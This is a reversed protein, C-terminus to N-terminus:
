RTRPDFIRYLLDSILNLTIFIVGVILVCTMVANMDGILMNNTLYQGFGPWSFVTEILVAGELLSGYALAVITVLQVRINLFAHRWITQRSSLGKVRATTIYEQNIQDLMFSRTMRTIYASSSYGLISAPLILHNLASRFVEWDGALASDILLFGTREDVMGIYYDSMRGSGGVWGLAAYFVLLGIMGTWFIPMSHGMLSFVRVVHDPWRDKNVAALVGLTVGLTAGILIALTALEITAPLVHLIDNIVPQGTRISVGFNGSLVDRLYFFFQEWLPRDLGLQRYVMEYTERTADEGVIARVPDSPMMRGIVFTLVLLGFLTVAVTFLQSLLPGLHFRYRINKAPTAASTPSWSAIESDKSM